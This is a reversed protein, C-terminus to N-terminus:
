PIISQKTKSNFARYVLPKGGLKHGREKCRKIESLVIALSQGPMSAGYWTSWRSDKHIYSTSLEPVAYQIEWEGALRM